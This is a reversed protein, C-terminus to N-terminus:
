GNKTIRQMNTSADYTRGRPDPSEGGAQHVQQILSTVPNGSDPNLILEIQQRLDASITKEKLLQTARKAVQQYLEPSLRRLIQIDERTAELREIRTIIRRPDELANLIKSTRPTNGSQIAEQAISLKEREFSALTMATKEDLGAEMYGMYADEAIEDPTQSFMSEAVKELDTDSFMKIAGVKAAYKAPKNTVSGVASYGKRATKSVLIKGAGYLMLAPVINGSSGIVAVGTMGGILPNRMAFAIPRGIKQFFGQRSQKLVEEVEVLEDKIANITSQKAGVEPSPLLTDADAIEKELKAKYNSLAKHEVAADVGKEKGGLKAMLRKAPGAVKGAAKAAGLGVLPMAGGMVAGMSMKMAIQEAKFEKQYVQERIEDAAAIAMGETAGGAIIKGAKPVAARTMATSGGSVFKGAIKQAATAGATSLGAGGTLAVGIPSLMYGLTDGAFTSIPNEERLDKSRTVFDDYGVAGYVAEPAGWTGSSVLAGLFAEGPADLSEEYKQQEVEGRKAELEELSLPQLGNEVARHLRTEDAPVWAETGAKEDWFAVLGEENVHAAKTPQEPQAQRRAVLEEATLPILGKSVAYDVRDKPIWAESNNENTWFAVHGEANM